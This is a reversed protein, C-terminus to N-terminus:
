TSHYSRVFSCTSPGCSTVVVLSSDMSTGTDGRYWCETLWAVVDLVSQRALSCVRAPLLPPDTCVSLQQPPPLRVFLDSQVSQRPINGGPVRVIVAVAGVHIHVLPFLSVVM